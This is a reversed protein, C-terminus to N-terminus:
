HSVSQAERLRGVLGSLNQIVMIRSAPNRQVM